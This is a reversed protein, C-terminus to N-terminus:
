ALPLGTTDLGSLYDPSLVTSLAPAPGIVYQVSDVGVLQFHGTASYGNNQALEQAIANQAASSAVHVVATDTGNGGVFEVYPPKGGGGLTTDIIMTDNGLGGDFVGGARYFATDNGAGGLGNEVYKGTSGLFDDGAGLDLTGGGDVVLEDDGDALDIEEAWGGTYIDDDEDGTTLSALGEGYIARTEGGFASETVWRSSNLLNTGSGASVQDAGTLSFVNDGDGASVDGAWNGVIAANNGGGLDLVDTGSYSVFTDDGGFLLALNTWGTNPLPVGIADLFARGAAILPSQALSIDDNGPGGILAQINQVNTGDVTNDGGGLSLIGFGANTAVVEDDGPGLLLTEVYADDVVVTDEGFGTVVTGAGADFNPVGLLTQVYEVINELFGDSSEGDLAVEDDGPGSLITEVFADAANVVDDGFGTGVTGAGENVTVEDDGLTTLITDVFGNLTFSDDGFASAIFGRYADFVATYDLDLDALEAFIALVGPTQVDFDTEPNGGGDDYLFSFLFPVYTDIITSM